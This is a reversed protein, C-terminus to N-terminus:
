SICTAAAVKDTKNSFRMLIVGQTARSLKPVSALPLKVIQGKISTLVLNQCETPIMQASVVKGTKITVQAVKVGQGGRHQKPFNSIPTKKGIGNEMVTLFDTTQNSENIVEMAVVSNTKESLIGRVGLTDRGTSRVESESFKISKGDHTVLLISDEGSSLKAWRLEDGSELKIALLGNRRINEYEKLRSKKVTGNKTAMFIYSYKKSEEGKLPYSLVSTVLENQDINILNVIAQGKSLRSGEPLDWARLQYVKGKNTFFLVNDHTTASVFLNISDAEKTIM